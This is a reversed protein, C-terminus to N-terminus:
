GFLAGLRRDSLLTRGVNVELDGELVKGAKQMFRWPREMFGRPRKFSPGPDRALVGLGRGHVGRAEEMLGWPRKFSGGLGRSYAVLAKQIFGLPEQIFGWPRKFSSGGRERM